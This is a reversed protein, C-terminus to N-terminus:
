PVICSLCHFGGLGSDGFGGLLLSYVMFVFDFSRAAITVLYVGYLLFSEAKACMIFVVVCLTFVCSSFFALCSSDIASLASLDPRFKFPNM